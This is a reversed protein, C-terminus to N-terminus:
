GRFGRGARWLQVRFAAYAVVAAIIVVPLLTAALWFAFAALAVAGLILAVLAGAVALRLLWPLPTPWPLRGPSGPPRTFEGEPTMDIIVTRRPKM